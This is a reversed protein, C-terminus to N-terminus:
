FITLNERFENFKTSFKFNKPFFKAEAFNKICIWATRIAAEL